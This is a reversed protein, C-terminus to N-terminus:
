STFNRASIKGFNKAVGFVERLASTIRLEFFIKRSINYRYAKKFSSHIQNKRFYFFPINLTKEV